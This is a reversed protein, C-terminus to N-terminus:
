RHLILSQYVENTAMIMKEVPFETEVHKRANSGIRVALQPDNLLKVISSTLANPDEPPLLIGSEGDIIQERLGDIYTAIIPKAMAMAELTVMPFGELLSPIVLIDMSALVEKIDSRFGAFIIKDKM